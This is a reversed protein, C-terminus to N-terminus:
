IIPTLYMGLKIVCQYALQLYKPTRPCPDGFFDNDAKFQCSSLAECRDNVRRLSDPKECNTDCRDFWGICCPCSGPNREKRGYMASLVRIVKNDNCSLRVTNDDAHECVLLRMISSEGIIFLLVM